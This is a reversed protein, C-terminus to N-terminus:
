NSNKYYCYNQEERLGIQEQFIPCLLLVAVSSRLLFILKQPKVQGEGEGWEKILGGTKLGLILYILGM